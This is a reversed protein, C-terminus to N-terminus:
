DLLSFALYNIFDYGNKLGDSFQLERITEFIFVNVLSLCMLWITFLLLKMQLSCSLCITKHKASCPFLLCGDYFHIVFPLIEKKKRSLLIVNHLIVPNRKLGSMQQHVNPSNGIKAKTFLAAIFVTGNVRKHM